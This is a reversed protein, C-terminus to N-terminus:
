QRRGRRGLVVLLLGGGIMALTAPEPTAVQNNPPTLTFNTANAVVFRQSNGAPNFVKAGSLFLPTIAGSSYANQALTVFPAAASPLPTDRTGMLDWIAMSVPGELNKIVTSNSSPAGQTLSYAALWAAEAENAGVPADYTGPYTTNYQSTKNEDLCFVLLHSVTNTTTDTLDAKYPGAAVTYNHSNVTYTYNGAGTGTLVFNYTDAYAPITAFLIAGM